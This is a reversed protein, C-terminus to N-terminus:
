LYGGQPKEDDSIDYDPFSFCPQLIRHIFQSYLLLFPFAFKRSKEWSLVQFVASKQYVIGM